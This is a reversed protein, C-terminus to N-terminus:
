VVDSELGESVRECQLCRNGIVGDTRMVCLLGCRHCVPASLGGIYVEQTIADSEDDHLIPTPEVQEAKLGPLPCAPSHPDSVQADCFYCAM